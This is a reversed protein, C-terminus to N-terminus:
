RVIQRVRFWPERCGGASVQLAPLLSPCRQISRQVCGTAEVRSAAGSVWSRGNGAKMWGSRTGALLGTLRCPKQAKDEAWCQTERFRRSVPKGLDNPFILP